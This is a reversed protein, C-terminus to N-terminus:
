FGHEEKYKKLWEYAAKREAKWRPIHKEYGVSDPWTDPKVYDGEVALEEIVEDITKKNEYGFISQIKNASHKGM